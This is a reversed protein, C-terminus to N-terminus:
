LLMAYRDKAVRDPSPISVHPRAVSRPTAFHVSTGRLQGGLERARKMAFRAEIVARACKIGCVTGVVALDWNTDDNRAILIIDYGRNFKAAFEARGDCATATSRAQGTLAAVHRHDDIERLVHVAHELNITRRRIPDSFSVM